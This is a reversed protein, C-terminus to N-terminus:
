SAPNPRAFKGLPPAALRPGPYGRVPGFRRGEEWDARAAAIEEPTSAVFNWWMLVPDAFPVGGILLIRAGGASRFPLEARGRGLYHMVDRELPRGEIEADGSLVFVGHEREPVAPLRARGQKPVALELGVLDSWVKAPSSTGGLEGAFLRAVGGHADIEPVQDIHQFTAEVQRKGEPLAIWLQVGDLRGRNPKPTEESHAIGLGSTMVNVGGARVTAEFGLSDRHLVEGELLWSVTQLGIHPHPAVDMPKQDTFSLPGYRDLFCWPGILRRDRVPLARRITLDGLATERSKYTEFVAGRNLSSCREAAVPGKV